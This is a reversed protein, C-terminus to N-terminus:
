DEYERNEGRLFRRIFGNAKRKLYKGVHKNGYAGGTTQARQKLKKFPNM